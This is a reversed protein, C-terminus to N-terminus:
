LRKERKKRKELPAHYAKPVFMICKTVSKCSNYTWHGSYYTSAVWFIWELISIIERGLHLAWTDSEIQPEGHAVSRLYLKQCWKYLRIHFYLCINGISIFLLFSRLAMDCPLGSRTSHILIRYRILASWHEDLDGWGILALSFLLVVFFSQNRPSRLM